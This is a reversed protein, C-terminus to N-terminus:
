DGATVTTRRLEDSIPLGSPKWGLVHEAKKGSIRQDLVLGQVMPGLAVLAEDIVWNRVRGEAGVAGSAIRAVDLMRMAPGSAGIFLTGPAARLACVYLNALDDVHVFTWHNEGTGAVTAAGTERASKVFSMVLGGGRGYVMAPRLVVSRISRAKADVVRHEVPVRWAVLPPPDLPSEEDADKATNGMVWVGSTYVFLKGSGALADLAANVFAEDVLAGNPGWDFATHIVAEHLAAEAAVADPNDLSGTFPRVSRDALMRPDREPRVLGTVSHGAAVLAEAVAGGIYGTAGTLFINM